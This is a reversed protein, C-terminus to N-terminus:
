ALITPTDLFQVFLYLCHNVKCQRHWEREWCFALSLRFCFLLIIYPSLLKHAAPGMVYLRSFSVVDAALLKMPQVSDYSMVFATYSIAISM